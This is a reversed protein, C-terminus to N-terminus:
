SKPPEIQGAQVRTAWMQDYRDPKRHLPGPVRRYERPLEVADGPSVESAPRYNGALSGTTANLGFTRQTLSARSKNRAM